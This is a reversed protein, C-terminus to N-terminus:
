VEKKGHWLKKHKHLVKGFPSLDVKRAENQTFTSLGAGEMILRKKNDSNLKNDLAHADSLLYFTLAGKTMKQLRFLYRDACPLNLRECLNDDAYMEFTDGIYLSWLLKNGEKCSELLNISQNANFRTVCEWAIKADKDVYFDTRLNARPEFGYKHSEKIYALTMVEVSPYAHGILSAKQALEIARQLIDKEVITKTKRGENQNLILEEQLQKDAIDLKSHVSHIINEVKNYMNAVQPMNEKFELMPKSYLSDLKAFSDIDKIKRNYYVIHQEKKKPHECLISYKTADHLQGNLAHEAKVSVKIDQLKELLSNRVDEVNTFGNPLGIEELSPKEKGKHQRYAKAYRQMISISTNAIVFADLAHHRHDLRPKARKFTEGTDFNTLSKVDYNMLDYELYDLGWIHRLEATVKGQVPNVKECIAYLYKRAIRAMYRTDNLASGSPTFDQVPANEEGQGQYKAYHDVAEKTFRWAKREPYDKSSIIEQIHVFKEPNKKNIFDYPLMENKEKNNILSTLGLNIYANVGNLARPVLHEIECNVISTVPINDYTFIDKGGQEKWLKYKTINQGTVRINYKKLDEIIEINKKANALQKRQIEERKKKSNGLDRALEIRIEEPKGYLSIIENVVKRLQNLTSHVVPNAIRGYDAEDKNATKVHWPHVLQVDLPLIKGYYPLNEETNVINKLLEDQREFGAEKIAETNSIIKKKLEILIKESAEKGLNSRDKPLKNIAKALSIEEEKTTFAFKQMLIKLFDEDSHLVSHEQNPYIKPEAIFDLIEEQMAKDFAYFKPIDKFAQAIAYGKIEQKKSTVNFELKEFEITFNKLYKKLGAETLNAGAMLDKVIEDRMEKTLPIKNKRTGIRINNIQEYIRREEAIPHMRALRKGGKKGLITCYGIAYPAHPKDKFIAEELIDQLDKLQPYFEAQKALITYFDNKVLFRPVAYDISNREIFRERRRVPLPNKKGKKPLRNLYFEGLSINKSEIEQAIVKYPDAKTVKKPSDADTEKSLEEAQSLFGAGRLKAMHILCRGLEHLSIQEKVAKARLIYPSTAILKYENDAENKPFLGHERLISKLNRIRQQRRRLTKREQRKVRRTAAGESETFLRVGADLLPNKIDKNETHILFTGISTIGLDIGLIYSYNKSM